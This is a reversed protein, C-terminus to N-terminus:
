DREDRYQGFFSIPKDQLREHLKKNEAELEAVRARLASGDKLTNLECVLIKNAQELDAVRACLCSITLNMDNTIIGHLTANDAELERIRAAARDMLQEAEFLNEPDIGRELEASLDLEAPTPM